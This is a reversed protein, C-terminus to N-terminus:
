NSNPNSEIKKSKIFPKKINSDKLFDVSGIINDNFTKKTIYPTTRNEALKKDLEQLDKFTTKM